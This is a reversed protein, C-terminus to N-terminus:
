ACLRFYSKVSRACPNHQHHHSQRASVLAERLYFVYIRLDLLQLYETPRVRGGGPPVLFLTRETPTPSITRISAAAGKRDITVTLCPRQCMFFLCSQKMYSRSWVDSRFNWKLVRSSQGRLGWGTSGAWPAATGDWTPGFCAWATGVGQLSHRFREELSFVGPNKRVVALCTALYSDNQETEIHADVPQETCETGNECFHKRFM